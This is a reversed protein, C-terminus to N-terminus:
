SAQSPTSEPRIGITVTRNVRITRVDSRVGNVVAYLNTHGGPALRWAASGQANLTTSRVVKYVTSPLTRAYLDVRAGAPGGTVTTVQSAGFAVTAASLVLLPKATAPPQQTPPTPVDVTEVTVTTAPCADAQQILAAQEAPDVTLSWRIKVATWV